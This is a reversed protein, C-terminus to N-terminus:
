EEPEILGYKGDKRIYVVNVRETEANMFVFFNHGLLNMQLIAEETDMPKLPFRKIKAIKYEPEESIEESIDFNEPIMADQRIRKGLRTKHKRMQRELKEIVMDISAYMDHTSEEARIFTGKALITTEFIFRDKEINFTLHAEADPKFFKEFKAMKKRARELMADSVTTNKAKIIYKM